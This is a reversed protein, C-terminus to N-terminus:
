PAHDRAITQSLSGNVQTVSLTAYLFEGLSIENRLSIKM